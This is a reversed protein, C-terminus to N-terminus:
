GGRSRTRGWGVPLRPTPSPPRSGSSSASSAYSTQVAALLNRAAYVPVKIREGSAFVLTNGIVVDQCLSDAVLMHVRGKVWPSEIFVSAVSYDRTVSPDALSVRQVIGSLIDEESVLKESIICLEAGTDRLAVAPRGNLRVEAESVIELKDCQDCLTPVTRM